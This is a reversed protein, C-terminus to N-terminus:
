NNLYKEQREMIATGLKVELALLLIEKVSENLGEKMVQIRAWLYPPMKIKNDEIIDQLTEMSNNAYRELAQAMRAAKKTNGTLAVEYLDNLSANLTDKTTLLHSSITDITFHPTTEM